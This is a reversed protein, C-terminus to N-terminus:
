FSLEPFVWLWEEVTSMRTKRSVPGCESWGSTRARDSVKLKEFPLTPLRLSMTVSLQNSGFVSHFLVVILM